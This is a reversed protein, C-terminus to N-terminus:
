PPDSVMSAQVTDVFVAVVPLPPPMPMKAPPVCVTSVTVNSSLWAPAFPPLM